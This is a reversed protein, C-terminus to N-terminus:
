KSVFCETYKPNSLTKTMHLMSCDSLRRNNVEKGNQAISHMLYFGGDPQTIHSLDGCGAKDDDHQFFDFCQFRKQPM